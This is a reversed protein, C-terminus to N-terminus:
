VKLRGYAQEAKKLTTENRRCWDYRNSSGRCEDQLINNAEKAINIISYFVNLADIKDM